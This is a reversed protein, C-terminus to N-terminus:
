DYEGAAVDTANRIAEKLEVIAGGGPISELISELLADIADLLRDFLHRVPNDLFGKLWHNINNLKWVLQRGHLGHLRITREDMRGVVEAVSQFIGDNELEGLSPQLHDILEDVFLHQISGGPRSEESVQWFFDHVWDIVSVLYDRAEAPQPDYDPVPLLTMVFPM